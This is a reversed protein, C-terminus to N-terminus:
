DKLEEIFKGLEVTRQNIGNWLGNLESPIGPTSFSLQYSPANFRAVYSADLASRLYQNTRAAWANAEAERAAKDGGDRLGRKLNEGENLLRSIEVRTARRREKADLQRAKDALQQELSSIRDASRRLDIKLSDIERDKKQNQEQLETIRREKTEVENQATRDVVVNTVIQPPPAPPRLRDVALYNAYTFLGLILVCGFAVLSGRVVPKDLSSALSCGFRPIKAVLRRVRRAQASSAFLLVVLLPWARVILKLAEDAVVRVYAGFSLGATTEM